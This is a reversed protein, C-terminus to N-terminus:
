LRCDMLYRPIMGSWIDEEALDSIRQGKGHNHSWLELNEPRNDDKIGNKHHVTEGKQLKRGLMQEMVFRHEPQQYNKGGKRETLIRYGHKDITWGRANLKNKPPNNAANACQYGCFALPV